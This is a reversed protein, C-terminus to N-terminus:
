ILHRNQKIYAFKMLAEFGYAGLLLGIRLYEFPDSGIIRGENISIQFPEEHNISSVKNFILDASSFLHVAKELWNEPESGIKAIHENTSEEQM